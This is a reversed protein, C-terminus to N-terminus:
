IKIGLKTYVECSDYVKMNKSKIDKTINYAVVGDLYDFYLELASQIIYKQSKHTSISITELEKAISIDLFILKKITAM